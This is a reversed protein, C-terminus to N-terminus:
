FTVLNVPIKRSLWHINKIIDRETGRPIFVKGSLLQLSFWFVIKRGIVKKGFITGNILYHPFCNAFGPLGCIVIHRLRMAHQIVLAVFV